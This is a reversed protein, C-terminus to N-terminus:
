PRNRQFGAAKSFRFGGHDRIPRPLHSLAPTSLSQKKSHAVTVPVSTGGLRGLDGGSSPRSPRPSALPRQVRTVRGVSRRLALVGSKRQLVPRRRRARYAGKRHALRGGTLAWTPAKGFERTRRGPQTDLGGQPRVPRGPAPREGQLGVVRVPPMAFARARPRSRGPRTWLSMSMTCRDSPTSGRKTSKVHVLRSKRRGGGRRRRGATLSASEAFRRPNSMAGPNFPERRPAARGTPPERPLEARPPDRSPGAMMSPGSRVGTRVPPTRKTQSAIAGEEGQAEIARLV